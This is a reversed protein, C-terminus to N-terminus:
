EEEKKVVVGGTVRHWEGGSESERSAVSHVFNFNSLAGSWPVGTVTPASKVSATWVWTGSQDLPAWNQLSIQVTSTALM